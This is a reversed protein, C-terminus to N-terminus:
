VKTDIVEKEARVRVFAEEQGFRILDSDHSTRFSRGISSLFVAEILNTKGQANRGVIINVNKDFQITLEKYNRFNKLELETIYM